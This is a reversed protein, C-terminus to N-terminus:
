GGSVTVDWLWTGSVQGWRLQLTVRHAGGDLRGQYALLTGTALAVRSAGSGTLTLVAQDPAPQVAFTVISGAAIGVRPPSVARTGCPQRSCYQSVAGVASQVGAFLRVAPASSPAQGSANAAQRPKPTPSALHRAAVRTASCSAALLVVVIGVAFAAFRRSM